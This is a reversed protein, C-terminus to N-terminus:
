TGDDGTAGGIRDETRQARGEDLRADVHELAEALILGREVRTIVGDALERRVVAKLLELEARLTAVEAALDRELAAGAAIAYRALPAADAAEAFTVVVVGDSMLDAPLAAEVARAGDEGPAGVRVEGRREGRVWLGLRPAPAGPGYGKLVGTFRGKALGAIHLVWDSM